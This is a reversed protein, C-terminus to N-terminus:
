SGYNNRRIYSRNVYDQKVVLALERKPLYIYGQEYCFYYRSGKQTEYIETFHNFDFGKARLIGITTKSKGTPNLEALIRRNKALKRNITRVLNNIDRGVQNNYNNRCSSDCFKKDIRGSIATGCYLCNRNM